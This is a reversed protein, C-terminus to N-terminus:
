GGCLRSAPFLTCYLSRKRIPQSSACTYPHPSSYAYPQRTWTEAVGGGNYLLAASPGSRVRLSGDADSSDFAFWVTPNPGSNPFVNAIGSPHGPCTGSPAYVTSHSCVGSCLVSGNNVTLSGQCAVDVNVHNSGFRSLVVDCLGRPTSYRGTASSPIEGAFTTSAVLLLFVAFFKHM